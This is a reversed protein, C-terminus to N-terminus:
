LSVSQILARSAAPFVCCFDLIGHGETRRSTRNECKEIQGDQGRSFCKSLESFEATGEPSKNLKEAAEKTTGLRPHGMDPGNEPSVHSNVARLGSITLRLRRERAPM